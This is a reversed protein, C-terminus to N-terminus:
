KTYLIRNDYLTLAKMYNAREFAAPEAVSKQSLTGRMQHVSKYDYDDMWRAFEELMPKARAIGNKVLESATMVVNAGAMIAKVMDEATHVGSTLAFDAQVRDFLIAIWRLPLLLDSSDSLELSPVVELKTIDLTPQYFRNFLVLGKAGASVAGAAFHPLSSFFPSLKVALPIKISKHIDAILQLKAAELDASTLGPDTTVFYLNLELADAGAEEIMKAYKIWGGTSIGNLSGIIPIKVSEKAQSILKLYNEPGTNYASLEPFYTIAEAFSETGRTLFHDLALSEHIIEEEFLSYLVVAGLGADEMQKIYELKKSLASASAVLPSNLELGLYRTRLDAM